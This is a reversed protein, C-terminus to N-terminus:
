NKWMINRRFFCCFNNKNLSIRRQKFVKERTLEQLKSRITSLRRNNM